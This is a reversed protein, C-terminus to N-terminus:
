QGAAYNASNLVRLLAEKVREEIEDVGESLNTTSVTLSEVLKNVNISINTQKSGGGTINDIGEKLSPDSDPSGPGTGANGSSDASLSADRWYGEGSDVKNKAATLRLSERYGKSTAEGIQKGAEVAAKMTGVGILDSAAQKGTEWAGAFDGDLMQSIAKGIGMIGSILEKVRVIVLNYLGEGFAKLGEWAGDVVARFGEFENYAWVVGAVLAGIATIVLGVPNAAMVAWLLKLKGALIITGIRAILGIANYATMVVNMAAFAGVATLLGAGLGKLIPLWTGTNDRAWQIADGIWSLGRAVYPLIVQGLEIMVVNFQNGVIEKLTNFDGKANELAKNVDFKSNDFADFTKLVDEGSSRVQNLLGRLGEPGGIEGLLKHFSQDDMSKFKPVLDRVIDDVSRLQNNADYMSIGIGELGKITNKQILGEFASKTMTAALESNKAIATFAAFVKNATNFDQGAAKAAGGYETQVKALEDFTTIGVQVTKANSALYDDVENVSFGFAKMAKTTSNISAGLDAKTALSFRGVKRTLAEVEDGYLGTASQVDYFAKATKQPDLGEQFSLNLIQDNLRSLQAESKDLNLNRIDLFENNFAAAKATATGMVAGVAIAGATLAIFPNGIMNLAADFGPIESAASRLAGNFKETQKQLKQFKGAAKDQAASIKQLTGSVKDQLRFVYEYLKM